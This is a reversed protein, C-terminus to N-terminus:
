LIRDLLGHILDCTLLHKEVHKDAKLVCGFLDKLWFLPRQSPNATTEDYDLLYM